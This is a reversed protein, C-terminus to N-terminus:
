RLGRQSWKAVADGDGSAQAISRGVKVVENYFTAPVHEETAENYALEAAKLAEATRAERLYV